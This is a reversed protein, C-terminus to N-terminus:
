HAFMLSTTDDVHNASNYTVQNVTTGGQSINQAGESAVIVPKSAQSAKANETDTQIAEMKAGQTNQVRNMEVGAKEMNFDVIRESM